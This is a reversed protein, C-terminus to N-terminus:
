LLYIASFHFTESFILLWKIKKKGLSFHEANWVPKWKIVSSGCENVIYQNLWEHFICFAVCHIDLSLCICFYKSWSWNTVKVIRKPRINMIIIQTSSIAIFVFRQVIYLFIRHIQETDWHQVSTTSLYVFQFDSFIWACHIKRSVM